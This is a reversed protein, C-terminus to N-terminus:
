ARDKADLKPPRGMPPVLAVSGKRRARVRLQSVYRANLGLLEAAKLGSVLGSECLSVLALNRMGTDHEDYRYLVRHGMAIVVVGDRRFLRVAEAQPMGEFPVTAPSGM